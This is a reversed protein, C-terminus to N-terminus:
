RKSLFNDPRVFSFNPVDMLAAPNNNPDNMDAQSLDFAKPSKTVPSTTADEYVYEQYQFKEEENQDGGEINNGYNEENQQM